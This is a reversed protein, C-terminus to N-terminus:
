KGNKIRPKRTGKRVTESKSTRLSLRSQRRIRKFTASFGNSDLLEWDNETLRAIEGLFGAIPKFREQRGSSYLWASLTGKDDILRVLEVQEKYFLNINFVELNLLLALGLIGFSRMETTDYLSIALFIAVVFSIGVLIEVWTDSTYTLTLSEYSSPKKRHRKIEYEISQGIRGPILAIGITLILILGYFLLSQSVFTIPNDSFSVSGNSLAGSIVLVLLV